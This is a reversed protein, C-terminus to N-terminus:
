YGVIMKNVKLQSCTVNVMIRVIGSTRWQLICSSFKFIFLLKRTINKKFDCQIKLLIALNLNLRLYNSSIYMSIIHIFSLALLIHTTLCFCLVPSPVRFFTCSQTDLITHTHTHTHTEPSQDCYILIVETQDLSSVLEVSLKLIKYLVSSLTSCLMLM